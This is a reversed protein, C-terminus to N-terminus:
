YVRHGDDTSWEGNDKWRMESIGIIMLQYIELEYIILEHLQPQTRLNWTGIVTNDRIRIGQPNLTAMIGGISQNSATPAARTTGPLSRDPIALTTTTMVQTDQSIRRTAGMGRWVISWLFAGVSMNITEKIM